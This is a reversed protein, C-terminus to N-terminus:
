PDASQQLLANIEDVLVPIEDDGYGIHIAAIRGDRGVIVMHPIGDVGYQMGMYGNEDSVLTLDINHLARDIARFQETSERWNVAFIMVQDRTAKKQISALVAMEKRCPNCWSAWFSVIVVKGRYDSLKNFGLKQPPLDGVQLKQAAQAAFAALLLGLAWPVL